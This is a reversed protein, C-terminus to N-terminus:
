CNMFELHIDPSQKKKEFPFDQGFQGRRVFLSGFSRIM